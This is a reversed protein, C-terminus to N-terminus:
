FKSIDIISNRKKNDNWKDFIKQLIDNHNLSLYIFCLFDYRSQLRFLDCEKITPNQFEGGSMRPVACIECFRVNWCNKCEPNNVTANYKQYLDTVREFDLGSVCNGIPMSGDTKHCILYNGNAALMLNDFGMPCSLLAMLKNSGLPNEYTVKTFKGINDFYGVDEFIDDKKSLTAVTRKFERLDNGIFQSYAEYEQDLEAAFVGKYEAPFHRYDLSGIDRIFNFCKQRDHMDTYVGFISVREKFYTKNFDKIKELNIYAQTFTGEGNEFVRCRNHEEEPGDLSAYLFVNNKVLFELIENNMISLNTNTVFVLDRTNIRYNHWPLKKFYEVCIKILDFQLFPEGGYWSLTPPAIQRLLEQKEDSLKSYLQTYKAFYYDIGKFAMEKTMNTKSHKRFETSITNQCYTCRFNCDETVELCFKRLMINEDFYQLQKKLDNRDVSSIENIPGKLLIGCSRLEHYKLLLQKLYGSEFNSSYNMIIRDEPIDQLFDALVELENCSLVCAFHPKADYLLVDNGYDFLCVLPYEKEFLIVIEKSISKLGHYKSTCM